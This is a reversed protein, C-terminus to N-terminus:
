WLASGGPAGLPQEVQAIRLPRDDVELLFLDGDWRMRRSVEDESVREAHRGAPVRRLRQEHDAVRDTKCFLVEHDWFLRGIGFVLLNMAGNAANKAASGSSAWVFESDM